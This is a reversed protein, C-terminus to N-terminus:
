PLSREFYFPVPFPNDRTGLESPVGTIEPDNPFVPVVDLTNMKTECAGHVGNVYRRLSRYTIESPDIGKDTYAVFYEQNQDHTIIIYGSSQSVNGGKTYGQGTCDNTEFYTPWNVYYGHSTYLELQYGKSNFIVGGATYAGLLLGSADFIFPNQYLVVIENSSAAQVNDSVALHMASIWVTAVLVLKQIGTEAIM